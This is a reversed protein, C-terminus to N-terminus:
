THTPLGPAAVGRIALPLSRFGLQLSRPPKEKEFEDNSPIQVQAAYAWHSSFVIM